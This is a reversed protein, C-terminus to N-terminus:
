EKISLTYLMNKGLKKKSFGAQTLVTDAKINEPIELVSLEQLGLSKLWKVLDNCILNVRMKDDIKNILAWYLIRGTKMNVTLFGGFEPTGEVYKITVVITQYADQKAGDIVQAIQDIPDILEKSFKRALELINKKENVSGSYGELAIEEVQRVPVDDKKPVLAQTQKGKVDKQAAASASSVNPSLLSIIKRLADGTLTYKYQTADLPQQIFGLETFLRAAYDNDKNEQATIQNVQRNQTLLKIARMLLEKDIGNKSGQDTVAWYYIKNDSLRVIVFGDLQDLQNVAILTACHLEETSAYNLEDLTGNLERLRSKVLDEFQKGYREKDYSIINYVEQAQAQKSKNDKQAAASASPSEKAAGAKDDKKALQRVTKVMGMLRANENGIEAIHRQYTALAQYEANSSIHILTKEIADFEDLIKTTDAQMDRKVKAIQLPHGPTAEYRAIKAGTVHENIYNEIQNISRGRYQLYADADEKDEKNFKEYAVKIQDAMEKMTEGQADNYSQVLTKFPQIRINTKWREQKAACWLPNNIM